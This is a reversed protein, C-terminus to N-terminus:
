RRRRCFAPFMGTLVVALVDPEPVALDNRSPIGAGSGVSLGFHSRWTNYDGAAFPANLNKRWVVYDAADVTDDGNFDGPVSPSLSFSVLTNGSFPDGGGSNDVVGLLAWGGGPLLPGLTLGEMNQGFLGGVQGKWLLAKTAPTFSQGILGASFPAQSSHCKFKPLDNDPCNIHVTFAESAM